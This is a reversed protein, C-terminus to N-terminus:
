DTEWVQYGIYLMLAASIPTKGLAKLYYLYVDSCVKDYTLEELQDYACQGGKINSTTLPCAAAVSASRSLQRKMGSATHM